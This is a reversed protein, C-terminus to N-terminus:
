FNNEALLDKMERTAQVTLHDLEEILKQLDEIPYPNNKFDEISQALEYGRDVGVYNFTPKINHALSSMEEFREDHFAKKLETIIGPSKEIFINILEKIMDKDGGSLEELASLKVIKNPKQINAYEDSKYGSHNKIDIALGIKELLTKFTFPKSIFDDMGADKCEEIDKDMISATIAIVPLNADIEKKIKRTAELGGMGPMHVDMLIVDYNKEGIKQIAEEGTKAEDVEVDIKTLIGKAIKRNVLHDDVVLIRLGSLEDKYDKKSDAPKAATELSASKFPIEVYFRTGKDEKSQVEISGKLKDVQNKVISLGLGTGGYNYTTIRSPQNFIEFISDKMEAPIGIGTDIVEFCLKGSDSEPDGKAKLKVTVTGEDTFNLANGVLNLLIQNIRAADGQVAEPVDENIVLDLLIGKKDADNQFIAKMRKLLESPNYKDSQIVAEETQTRRYEFINNIIALLSKASYKINELYEKQENDLETEELLQAMGLVGSLPTRIEHSMNALFNEKQKRSHELETVAKNLESETIKQHSIEHYVAVFYSNDGDEIEVPHIKVDAWFPEGEKNSLLVKNRFSDGSSLKKILEKYLTYNFEQISNILPTENEVDAKSFGTIDHFSKNTCIVSLTGTSYKYISCGDFTNEVIAEFFSPKNKEFFTNDSSM